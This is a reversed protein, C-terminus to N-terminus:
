EYEVVGAIAAAIEEMADASIRGVRYLFREVALGRLQMTDAASPKTLGTGSEPKIPVLHLASAYHPNWGTIPAVLRLPLRAVRDSSVVVAFRQKQMEAGVTPALDVRWIEGRKPNPPPDSSNLTPRQMNVTPARTAQGSPKQSPQSSSRPSQAM